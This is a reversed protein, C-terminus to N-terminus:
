FFSFNSLQILHLSEDELLPQFEIFSHVTKQDRWAIIVELVHDKKYRTQFNVPKFIIIRAIDFRSNIVELRLPPFNGNFYNTM